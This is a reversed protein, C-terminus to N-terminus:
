RAGSIILPSVRSAQPPGSHAGLLESSATQHIRIAPSSRAPPEKLAGGVYGGGRRLVLDDSAKTHKPNKQPM